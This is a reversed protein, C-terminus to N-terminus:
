EGTWHATDGKAIELNATKKGYRLKLPNGLLSRITAQTLKGDKWAIDVEFGGRARLGSVSGTPWADPLAPLIEIEDAHSQLLMEAIAATGGFNGDIQFPPHTDFLNTLTGKTLLTMLLKHARNGDHLRSWFNIKWAMSWGTSRDGRAELTKRAAEYFDPTGQATIQRGPHLGFLHSVHRHKPQAEAYDEIWEQLRGTKESIQMPQLREMASEVHQCFEKDFPEDQGLIRNAELVNTFLGHIIQLDMTSAYTFVSQTGDTKIFSNEPSHSPNSVLRGAGASGEPAEILFDLIFESARKMMPYARTALFERDGSFRYHEMFQRSLWAAGMPWVGHVGDAPTTKGFIDSLHHVVWGDAAYLEKATTEGFPVLSEVYDFYPQHCEALNTTQVPWYNMQFNINLHYDSSWPAKYNQCWKGQLNAPLFGPRSSSILLYRGFQFYLAALQPDLDKVEKKKLNAIRENTPRAAAKSTGVDLKVRSFLRQYDEIHNTRLQQFSKKAAVKLPSECNATADGTLDQANVFSTAGNLLLTVENANEIKLIGDKSSVTGGDVIPVLQAEYDLKLKGRLIIRNDKGSSYSADRRDFRASFSIKGPKDATLHVVIVQDPYSALVERTYTIGNVRYSVNTIGNTLDLDRRYKAVEDADPFDLLLDGLTQYSKIRKPNGMMKGALKSAKKNQGEFLLRQIEPLAKLGDPSHRDIYEGDWVTEENFQIRERDVGGFVMAGMRGNGVPLAETEWKLAPKRYWLTLPEVPPEAEDVFKATAVPNFAEDMKHKQAYVFSSSFASSVLALALAIVNLHGCLMTKM